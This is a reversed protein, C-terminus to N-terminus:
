FYSSKSLIKGSNVLMEAESPSQTIKDYDLSWYHTILLSHIVGRNAGLNKGNHLPKSGMPVIEVASLLFFLRKFDKDSM